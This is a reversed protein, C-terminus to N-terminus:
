VMSFAPKSRRLFVTLPGGDDSCQEVALGTPGAPRACDAGRAPRRVGGRLGAARGAAHHARVLVLAPDAPAARPDPPRHRKEQPHRQRFQGPFGLPPSRLTDIM